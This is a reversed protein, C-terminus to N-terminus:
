PATVHATSASGESATAINRVGGPRGARTWTRYFVGSVLLVVAVSVLPAGRALNVVLTFTVVVAGAVNLVLFRTRRDRHSFVAMAALGALFSLFVSVAYFLVLEQARGGAAGTVAVSIAAFVVVGWYPTHHINTRGLLPALIGVSHDNADTSRALAKLLGPGAQFSSSAASLLLLVTVLQFTAFVPAPAAVRASDAPPIGVHLHHAELALGLTITGVIGLTLWLTIRGFLRRGPGDLQGLQPM